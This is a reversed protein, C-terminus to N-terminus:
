VSTNTTTTTPLLLLLLLTTTWCLDSKQPRPVSCLPHCSLGRDHSRDHMHTNLTHDLGHWTVWETDHTHTHKTNPGPRTTWVNRRDAARQWPRPSACSVSVWDARRSWCSWSPWVCRSHVYRVLWTARGIRWLQHAFQRSAPQTSTTPPRNNSCSKNSSCPLPHPLFVATAVTFRCYHPSTWLTVTPISYVNGLHQPSLLLTWQLVAPDSVVIVPSSLNDQRTTWCDVVYHM